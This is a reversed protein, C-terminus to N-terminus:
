SVGPRHDDGHRQAGQGGDVGGRIVLPVRRLEGHQDGTQHAGAFRAGPWLGGARLPVHHARATYLGFEEVTMGCDRIIAPPTGRPIDRGAHFPVTTAPGDPHRLRHHSGRVGTVVFGARELAAIVQKATAAPLPM